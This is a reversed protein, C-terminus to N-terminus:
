LSEEIQRIVAELRRADEETNPRCDLGLYHDKVHAVHGHTLICSGDTLEIQLTVTQDESIDHPDLLAILAGQSSINIIHASWNSESTILTGSGRHPLRENQRRELYKKQSAPNM